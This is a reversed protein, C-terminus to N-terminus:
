PSSKYQTTGGEVSFGKLTWQKEGEHEKFKKQANACLISDFQFWLRQKTYATSLDHLIICYLLQSSPHIVIPFYLKSNIPNEVPNLKSWSSVAASNRKM